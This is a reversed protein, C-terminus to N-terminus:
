AGWPVSSRARLHASWCFAPVPGLLAHGARRRGAAAARAHTQLLCAPDDQPLSSHAVRLRRGRNQSSPVTARSCSWSPTLALGSLFCWARFQAIVARAFSVARTEASSGWVVRGPFESLSCPLVWTQAGPNRHAFAQLESYMEDSFSLRKRLHRKWTAWFNCRWLFASKKGGGGRERKRREKREKGKGRKEREWWFYSEGSHRFVSTREHEAAETTDSEKGGTSQLGGPEETWPIRWVLISSHTAMEKELPDEQGLSWDQTM